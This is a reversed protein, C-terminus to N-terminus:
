GGRRARHAGHCGKCSAAIRRHAARLEALDHAAAAASVARADAAQRDVLRRWSEKMGHRPVKQALEATLTAYQEGARRVKEWDPTAAELEAAVVKFPAKRVTFLRHMLASISHTRPEDAALAMLAAASAGALALLRRTIPSTDRRM